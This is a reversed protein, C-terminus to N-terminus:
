LWVHPLSCLPSGSLIGSQKFLGGPTGHSQWTWLLCSSRGSLPQVNLMGCRLPCSGRSRRSPPHPAHPKPAFRHSSILSRLTPGQSPLCYLSDLSDQGLHTVQVCRLLHATLPVERGPFGQDPGRPHSARATAASRACPRCGRSLSPLRCSAGLESPRGAPVARAHGVTGLPEWSESTM